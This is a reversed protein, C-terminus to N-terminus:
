VKRQIMQNQIKKRVLYIKLQVQNFNEFLNLTQLYLTTDQFFIERM